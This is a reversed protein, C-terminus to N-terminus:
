PVPVMRIYDLVLPNTATCTLQIELTGYTTSTFEGLLLEDYAGTATSLPVNHNLTALTTYVGASSLYKPIISQAFTGTQFDNVGFAYVRYKISPIEPLRYYAYYTTVGHGSIMIDTFNKGTVPNYRLRYNTNSTKDVLFGSPFEGQVTIEKFKNATLVDVKNLVYAIGNSLKITATIQLPDVPIPTGSKSLLGNLATSPYVGEVILDKVTNWKALSDTSAPVGTAYYNKLSDSELTFGPNAIIFYTYQRSEAKTDYVRSNFRNKIVIGTGPHYIPLGTTSSISDIIASAPDFDEFNLGAIFANQTYVTKTSNIYDWINPLVSISKDIVHLVGNKVFKDASTINADEFKNGQFNNYKGNLMGVRIMTQADKTFYSQNSIHNLIFTRLQANDNIIAPDLNALANDSPAWITYTKSSGLLTDLGAKHVYEAFKSLGSNSNVAQLLDQKLDQNSVAIHDDWKKCAALSAALLLIAPINKNKFWM